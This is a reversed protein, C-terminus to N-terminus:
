SLRVRLVPETFKGALADSLMKNAIDRQKREQDLREGMIKGRATQTVASAMPTPNVAEGFMGLALALQNPNNAAFSKMNNWLGVPQQYNIAGTPATFSQTLPVRDPTFSFM